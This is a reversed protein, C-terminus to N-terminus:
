IHLFLDFWFQSKGSSSLGVIELFTSPSIGGGLLEDLSQLGTELKEDMEELKYLDYASILEM